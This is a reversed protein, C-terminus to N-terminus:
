RAAHELGVTAVVHRDEDDASEGVHGREEEDVQEDRSELRRREAVLRGDCRRPRMLMRPDKRRVATRVASQQTLTAPLAPAVAQADACGGAFAGACAGAAGGGAM